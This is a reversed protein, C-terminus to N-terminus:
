SNLDFKVPIDVWKAIPINGDKAPLFKWTKIAEQAALDLSEYGCSKRIEVRSPIGDPTILTRIIVTGEWGSERAVRPYLPKSSSVIRPSSISSEASGPPLAKLAQLRASSVLPPLSPPIAPESSKVQPPITTPSSERQPIAPSLTSTQEPQHPVAMKMMERSTNRSTLMQNTLSDKLVPKTQPLPPPMSTIPKMSSISTSSPPIPTTQLSQPRLPSPTPPSLDPRAPIIPKVRPQPAPQGAQFAPVLTVKVTPIPDEVKPSHPLYDSGVLLLAHFAMSGLASWLFIRGSSGSPYGITTTV